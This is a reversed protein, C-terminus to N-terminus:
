ASAGTHPAYTHKFVEDAAPFPSNLAFERAAALAESVESDIQRIQARSVQHDKELTRAFRIVPDVERMWDAHDGEAREPEWAIEINTVGTALKTKAYKTGPWRVTQSEIFVPGSGSRIKELAKSAADWVAVANGGDVSMVDISLAAAVDTLHKANLTSSPWEGASMGVAGISNNECIFLVPLKELSAINLAEYAIGEELAGDGFFAISVNRNGAVKLPWAGGIAMGLSGGVLATSWLMGSATNALHASGTRGGNIGDRRGLIEALGRGPDGGTAVYHGHNRHTSFLLDGSIMQDIVSAGTAEQGIYVHCHGRYVAQEFLGVLTEEFRRIKLMSKLLGISNESKM